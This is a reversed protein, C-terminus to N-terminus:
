GSSPDLLSVSNGVSFTCKSLINQPLTPVVALPYSSDFTINISEDKEVQWRLSIKGYRTALSVMIQKILGLSPTFYIKTFGPEAIRIGAVERILFINPSVGYGRCLDIDSIQNLNLKSDFEAWEGRRSSAGMELMEGWYYRLYSVAWGSKGFAFLTELLFYKFYPSSDANVSKEFPKEENYFKSFIGPFDERRAVGSYLALINTQLSYKDSRKGEFYCDAFLGTEPNWTLERIQKAISSAKQRCLSASKEKEASEYIDASSLLARCYMANLATIMGRKDIEGYDIFCDMGCNENIDFLLGGNDKGLAEFFDLLSTLCPLMENLFDLNGTISYHKNLWVPWLLVHDLYNFYRGGPCLTPMNGNEFQAAAFERLAKESLTYDKFTYFSAEAQIMSDALYQSQHCNPSDMFINAATLSLTAAGTNWIKTLTEDSCKFTTEELNRSLKIFSANNIFICDHSKRVSVMLYRAGRPSFGLWSNDKDRLHLTDTCRGFFNIPPIRDAIIRDGFTIDVVDGEKGNLDFTPCGYNMREMDFIVYEGTCIGKELINEISKNKKNAEFKCNDLYASADKINIDLATYSSIDLKEIRLSATVASLPSKLPGAIDWGSIADHNPKTLFKLSGRKVTPFSIFFGPTKITNQQVMLFRNWGKNLVAEKTIFIKEAKKESLLLEEMGPSCFDMGTYARSVGYEELLKDNVFFKYASDSFIKVPAEKQASSFIYCQAAYAKNDGGQVGPFSVYTGPSSETYHGYIVPKCLDTPENSLPSLPSVTLRGEIQSLPILRDPRKWTVTNFGTETWGRPYLSLDCNELFEMGPSKHPQNGAYCAGDLVRWRNDTWIFPKGNINMQCWVGPPKCSRSFQPVRINHSLIAVTNMGIKLYYSLDYQDAYTIEKSSPPPGYGVHRDNMFLHYHSHASIWLDAEVSGTDLSFEHRFFVYSEANGIQSNNWIWEGKLDAPLKFKGM